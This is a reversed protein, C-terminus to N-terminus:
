SILIMRKIKLSVQRGDGLIGQLFYEPFCVVDAKRKSAEEIWVEADSLNQRLTSFLEDATQTSSEFSGNQDTEPCTQALAVRM